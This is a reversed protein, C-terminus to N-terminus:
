ANLVNKLAPRLKKWPPHDRITEWICKLNISRLVIRLLQTVDFVILRDRGMKNRLQRNALMAAHQMQAAALDVPAAQTAANSGRVM